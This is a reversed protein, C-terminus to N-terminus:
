FFSNKKKANRKCNIVKQNLHAIRNLETIPLDKNPDDGFTLDLAEDAEYHALLAFADEFAKSSYQDFNVDGITEPLGYCVIYTIDLVEQHHDEKQLSRDWVQKKFEGLNLEM